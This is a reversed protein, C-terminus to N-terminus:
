PLWPRAPDTYADLEFRKGVDTDGFSTEVWKGKIKGYRLQEAGNQHRGWHVLEHLITSELTKLLQNRRVQNEECAASQADYKLISIYDPKSPKFSGSATGDTSTADIYPFSGGSVCSVAQSLSLTSWKLFAEWVKKRNVVLGLDRYILLGVLSIRFQIYSNGALMVM